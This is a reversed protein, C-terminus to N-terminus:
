LEIFPNFLHFILNKTVLDAIENFQYNHDLFWKILKISNRFYQEMPMTVRVYISNMDWKEYSVYHVMRKIPTHEIIKVKAM